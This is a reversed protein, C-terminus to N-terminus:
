RRRTSFGRQIAGDQINLIFEGLDFHERLLQELPTLPEPLAGVLRVTPLPRMEVDEHWADCKDEAMKEIEAFQQPSLARQDYGRQDALLKKIEEFKAGRAKYLSKVEAAETETLKGPADDEDDFDDDNNDFDDINNDSKNTM